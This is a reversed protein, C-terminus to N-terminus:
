IEGRVLKRHYIPRKRTKNQSYKKNDAYVIILIIGLVLLISGTKLINGLIENLISQLVDSIGNNLLMITDVKINSSVYKEGLILILGDIVFAVGIKSTIRYIRKISLLVLIVGAVGIIVMMAKKALDIYKNIKNLAENIKKEYNTHSITTEYEKCITDVFTNIAKQESSSIKGNLSNNINETLKEKIEKTDIKEDMGNYINNLIIRTDKEIKEKTVIDKLVDEDLGSQHIYNEFNSETEQYIKEYYNQNQLKGLIYEKSLISSSLINIIILGLIALALITAVIYQIIKKAM